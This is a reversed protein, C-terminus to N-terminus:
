PELIKKFEAKVADTFEQLNINDAVRWGTQAFDPRGGGKRGIKATAANLIHGCHIGREKVLSKSAFVIVTINGGSHGFLIGASPAYKQRLSDAVQGVGAKDLEITIAPLYVDVGGIKIAIDRKQRITEEMDDRAGAGSAANKKLERIRDQMAELKAPVEAPGCSLTRAASHLIDREKLSEEVAKARTIAVIRRVGSQVATESLIKFYGAQGTRKLHTGGCLERSFDGVSIVRVTEGYKEGFLAMAGKKKAEEISEISISVRSNEAIGANVLREIERLQQATVRTHQTFDFRLYDPHVLSGQQTCHEGLVKRLAWHLLHTATHNAATDWRRVEDVKALVKDPLSGLDATELEGYHIAIDGIKGTDHVKFRFGQGEIVGNDGIQGGSESYFPTRDLVLAENGILKLISAEAEMGNKGTEDNEWYGLFETAAIGKIEEIDFKYGMADSESAKKHEDEAKKWEDENITFGEEGAMQEILDKPFGDQHYLRYAEFGDLEGAKKESRTKEILKHFRGMGREITRAFSKEEAEVVLKIHNKRQQVEPFIGEFIEAVPDVLRYIFPERIELVQRGFRASRRLLSRLVSGRMKRDPMIGDAISICLARIHDAIVRYAVLKRLDMDPAYALGTIEHLEKFIPTFLGTNYNSFNFPENNKMSGLVRLTETLREFGMGTDVHRAPLKELKGSELRNYQIFVLNWIEIFRACGGNVGCDSGDKAHDPNDCQGPGLDIHIESCPGCPGTSGMEWFNDEKGCRMVHDKPIDTVERWLVEAEEDPALGAKKEGGFVTAYLREPPLGCEEVLFQWGWRIAEEKFYDGFSWNGLMEFFTHHYGDRGVTELDNHKGSVRICKQTNAARTYSRSGTGLFVDKFQNMGANVFLLTPDEQPVVPISQVIKHDKGRFFELFRNRIEDPTMSVVLM